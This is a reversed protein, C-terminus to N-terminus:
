IVDRFIVAMECQHLLQHYVGPEVFSQFVAVALPLLMLRVHFRTPEAKLEDRFPAASSSPREPCPYHIQMELRFVDRM